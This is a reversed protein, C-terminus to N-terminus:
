LTDALMNFWTQWGSFQHIATMPVTTTTLASSVSGCGQEANTTNQSAASLGANYLSTPSSTLIAPAFNFSICGMNTFSQGGSTSSYQMGFWYEGPSLSFPMPVDHVRGGTVYVQPATMAFSFSSTSALTTTYSSSTSGSISTSSSTIGGTSDINAIFNMSFSTCVTASGTSINTSISTKGTAGFQQSRTVSTFSVLNSSNANTGSSQRSFLAFTMSHGVSATGSTSGQSESVANFGSVSSAYTSASDIIMMRYASVYNYVEFPTLFMSALSPMTSYILGAGMRDAPEFYSAYNFSNSGISITSGNTTIGVGNVGV